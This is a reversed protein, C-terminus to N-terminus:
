DRGFVDRTYVKDRVDDLDHTVRNAVILDAAEKFVALDRVVACGEFADRKLLPEYVVVKKGALRLRRIVDLVSSDRFNDSGTKMALKYVGFTEAGSDLLRDAIHSKRTANADVIAKVIDNPITGFASRLQKTDKPLCYGGYGFSPNNYGDGIRPDLCVGELIRGSDLGNREAFTDLENVFAIRMALYANSFLKIAEAEDSGTLLVPPDSKASARALLDAFRKAIRPAGGVVIRSPHLQDHLARGERLFEPAFAIRDTGHRENAARTFGFPVTSRVVIDAKGGCALVDGIVAEVAGTDFAGNGEAYDTPVAVIAIDADRYSVDKQMCASLRLKGSRLAAETERDAIPSVRRNIMNVKEPLIDTVVVDHRRALLVANSLGVYGIGAVVIKM